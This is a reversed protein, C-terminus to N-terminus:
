GNKTSFYLKEGLDRAILALEIESYRGLNISKGNIHIDARWKCTIKDFHVGRYGTNNNKQAMLNFHNAQNTVSRLNKRRNDLKNRNIHDTQLNDPTENILRHMVVNHKDKKRVVYGKTSISWKWQNLWDFDCDDVLTFLNPHKKTSINIKKM